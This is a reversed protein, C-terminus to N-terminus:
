SASVRLTCHDCYFVELHEHRCHLVHDPPRIYQRRLHKLSNLCQGGFPGLRKPRAKVVRGVPCCLMPNATEEGIVFIPMVFGGFYLPELAAGRALSRRRLKPLDFMMTSTSRDLSSLPNVKSHNDITPM